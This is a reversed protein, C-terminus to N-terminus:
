RETPQLTVTMRCNMMAAMDSMLKLGNEPDRMVRQYCAEALSTCAKRVCEQFQEELAKEPIPKIKKKSM